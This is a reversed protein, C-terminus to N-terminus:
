PRAGGLRAVADAECLPALRGAIDGLRQSCSIGAAAMFAGLGIMGAVEGLWTSRLRPIELRPLDGGGCLSAILGTTINRRNPEVGGVVYRPGFYAAVEVLRDQYRALVPVVRARAVHVDVVVGGSRRHVDSGRLGRLDTGVLGAGAGLAILGVGRHRRDETPQADALALYAAIEAPSYPAKARERSLRVPRPEPDLAEVLFLLNSRVTRASSASLDEGLAALFREIVAVTIVRHAELALGVSAAFAGLRGAAFLLAKARSPSAPSVTAVVARPFAAAQPSIRKPRYGAIVESVPRQEDM